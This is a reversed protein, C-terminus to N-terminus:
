KPLQTEWADEFLLDLAHDLDARAPGALERSWTVDGATAARPYTSVATTLMVLATSMAMKMVAAGRPAAGAICEHPPECGPVARPDRRQPRRPLHAPPM